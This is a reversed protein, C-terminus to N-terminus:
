GGNPIRAAAGRAPAPAPRMSWCGTSSASSLPTLDELRDHVQVNRTGARKLREIIPALRKRDTDYAHIQGKNNMAASMALTKGGGGACYDLIQDGEKPMVLDAVIQSGEDQVEFWGKQSPFNPRSTPCARPM